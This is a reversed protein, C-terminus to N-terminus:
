TSAEVVRLYPPVPSPKAIELCSTSNIPPEIPTSLRGPWPEVKQNVRSNVRSAWGWAAGNRQGVQSAQAREDHVVVFHVPAHQMFLNCAPAHAVSAETGPLLGQLTQMRGPLAAIGVVERDEVILHRTHVSGRQGLLDFRIRGGPCPAPSASSPQIDPRRLAYPPRWCRHRGAWAPAAIAVSSCARWRRTWSVARPAPRGPWARWGSRPSSTRMPQFTPPHSAERQTALARDRLAARTRANSAVRHAHRAVLVRLTGGASREALASKMEAIRSAPKAPGALAVHQKKVLRHRAHEDTASQRVPKPLCADISAGEMHRLAGLYGVSSLMVLVTDRTAPDAKFRRPWRPETWVPMQYDLIAFHYPDGSQPGCASGGPGAGRFQLKTACAGAQLRNM